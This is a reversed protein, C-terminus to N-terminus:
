IPRAQIVRTASAPDVALIRIVCWDQGLTIFDGRLVIVEQGSRNTALAMIKVDTDPIGYDNRERSSFEDRFACLELVQGGAARTLTVPQFPSDEDDLFAENISSKIEDLIGM